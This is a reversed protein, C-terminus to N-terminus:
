GELLTQITKRVIDFGLQNNMVVHDCNKVLTLQLDDSKFMQDLELSLTWKFPVTQDNMGHIVRVPFNGEIPGKSTVIKNAIFDEYLKLSYSFPEWNDHNGVDVIVVKGDEFEKLQQKTIISKVFEHFTAAYNIAPCILVLSHIECMQRQAICSALHAGMSNGVVLPPKRTIEHMMTIMNYADEIWISPGCDQYSLDSKGLGRPDYCLFNGPGTGHNEFYKKLITCGESDRGSNFGPIYM